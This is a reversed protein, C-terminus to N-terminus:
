PQLTLTADTATLAIERVTASFLLAPAGDLVAWVEATAGLPPDALLASAQASDNRLTVSVNALEDAITSRLVPAASLLAHHALSPDLWPLARADVHYQRLGGIIVWCIM